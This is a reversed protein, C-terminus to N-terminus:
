RAGLVNRTRGSRQPFRGSFRIRECDIGTKLRVLVEHRCSMEHGLQNLYCAFILRLAVTRRALFDRRARSVRSFRAQSSGSRRFYLQMTATASSRPRSVAAVRGFVRPMSRAGRSWEGVPSRRSFPRKLCKQGALAEALPPFARPDAARCPGKLTDHRQRRLHQYRETIPRWRRARLGL